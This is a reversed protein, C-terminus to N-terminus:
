NEGKSPWLDPTCSWRYPLHAKSSFVTNRRKVTASENLYQQSGVLLHVHLMLSFRNSESIGENQLFLFGGELISKKMTRIIILLM